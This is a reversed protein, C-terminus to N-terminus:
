LAVALILLIIIAAALWVLCGAVALGLGFRFGDAFNFENIEPAMSREERAAIHQKTAEGHVEETSESTGASAEENAAERTERDQEQARVDEDM